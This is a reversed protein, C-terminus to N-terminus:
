LRDTLQSRQAQALRRRDTDAAIRDVPKLVDIHHLQEVVIRIRVRDDHNTFDAARVFRIRRVPDLVVHLLRDHAEDSAHSRGRALPHAVSARQNRATGVSGFRLELDHVRAADLYRLVRGLHAPQQLRHQLRRWRARAVDPVAPWELRPPRGQVKRALTPCFQTNKRFGKAKHHASHALLRFPSRAKIKEGSGQGDHEFKKCRQVPAGHELNDDDIDQETAVISDDDRQHAPIKRGRLPHLAHQPARDARDCQTDHQNRKRDQQQVHREQLESAPQQQQPDTDLQHPRLRVRMAIDLRGVPQPRGHPRDNDGIEYHTQVVHYRNSARGRRGRGLVAQAQHNEAQQQAHRQDDPATRQHELQEIAARHNDREAGRQEPPDGAPQDDAVRDHRSPGITMCMRIVRHGAHGSCQGHDDDAPQQLPTAPLVGRRLGASAARLAAALEGHAAAAPHGHAATMPRGRSTASPPVGALARRRSTTACETGIVRPVGAARLPRAADPQNEAGPRRDPAVVHNQGGRLVGM